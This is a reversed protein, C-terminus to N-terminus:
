TFGILGAKSTAYGIRGADGLASISSISVVRGWGAAVIHPCVARAMYFAGSLNVAIVEDWQANSMEVVDAVAGIGANNVLVTPAGLTEAVHSVAAAVAAHDSVDAPASVAAGGAAVIAEAVAQCGSPDRDVVAVSLGDDALRRAIAAGIGGAAGTVVAVSASPPHMDM